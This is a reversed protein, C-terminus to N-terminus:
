LLYKGIEQQVEMFDQFAQERSYGEKQRRQFERQSEDLIENVEDSYMKQYYVYVQDGRRRLLVSIDDSEALAEIVLEPHNKFDDLPLQQWTKLM